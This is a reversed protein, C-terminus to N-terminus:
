TIWKSTVTASSTRVRGQRLKTKYYHAKMFAAMASNATATTRSLVAAKSPKMGNNLLVASRRDEYFVASVGHQSFCRAVLSIARKVSDTGAREAADRIEAAPARTRLRDPREQKGCLFRGDLSGHSLGRRMFWAHAHPQPPPWGDKSLRFISPLALDVITGVVM